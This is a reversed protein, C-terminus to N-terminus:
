YNTPFFNFVFKKFTHVLVQVGISLFVWRFYFMKVNYVIGNLGVGVLFLLGGHIMSVKRGLKWTISYTVFSAVLAALYLSSTFFTLIESNFTYYQNTNQVDIEKEYVSLFFKMLFPYM